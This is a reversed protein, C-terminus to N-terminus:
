TGLELPILWRRGYQAVVCAAALADGRKFSTVFEDRLRHQTPIVVLVREKNSM